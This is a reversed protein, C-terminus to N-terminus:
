RSAFRSARRRNLSRDRPRKGTRSASGHNRRLSRGSACSDVYRSFIEVLRDRRSDM